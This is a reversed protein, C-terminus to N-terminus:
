CPTNNTADPRRAHMRLKQDLSGWLLHLLICVALKCCQLDTFPHHPMYRIYTYTYLSLSAISILNPNAALRYPRDILALINKCMTRLSLHLLFLAVPDLAHNVPLRSAKRPIAPLHVSVGVAPHRLLTAPKPRSFCRHERVCVVCGPQSPFVCLLLRVYRRAVVAADLFEFLDAPYPM